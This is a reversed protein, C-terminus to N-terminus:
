LAAQARDRIRPETDKTAVQQLASRLDPRRGLWAVILGVAHYRVQPNLAATAAEALAHVLVDSPQRVRVVDLAALQVKASADGGLQSAILQDVTPDQMSRLATVGASHLDENPNSLYPLVRPLAPTYGANAIAGLVIIKDHDTKATGLEALILEGLERSEKLKGEDRMRRSFTGLGYLSSEDFASSNLQKLLAEVSAENPRPTRVLALSARRRLDDSLDQSNTLRVLAAQAEASSASGLAAILMPAAASRRRIRTVAQAVTDPHRRFIAALAEFLNGMETARAADGSSAEFADGGADVTGGAPRVALQEFKAVVKEFTLGHIRADDLAEVSPPAGYPQDAAVRVSSALLGNWDSPADSPVDGQAQIVINLTGHAQTQSGSVRIEEHQAIADPRGDPTVHVTWTTNTVEPLVHLAFSTPQQEAGLLSKYKTKKKRWTRGDDSVDRYYEVVCLGAADYEDIVYDDSADARRIFQMAAGIERYVNVAELTTGSQFREAALRGGEFEFFVSRTRLEDYVRDLATTGSASSKRPAVDHFAGFVMASTRTVSVPVMAFGGRITFAIPSQNGGLELESHLDVRYEYHAGSDWGHVVTDFVPAKPAVVQAAVPSADPEAEKAAHTCGVGCASAVILLGLSRRHGCKM